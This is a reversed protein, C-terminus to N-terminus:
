HYRYGSMTLHPFPFPPFGGKSCTSCEGCCYSHCYRSIYWSNNQVSVRTPAGFCHTGLDNITHGCKCRSSLCSYSTALWFSYITNYPFPSLVFLIWTHYSSSIILHKGRSRCPCPGITLAVFKTDFVVRLENNCKNSCHILPQVQYFVSCIIVLKTWKLLDM